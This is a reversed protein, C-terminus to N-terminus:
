QRDTEHRWEAGQQYLDRKWIPALKKLQDIIHRCAAFAEARHPCSVAIIVSAEGVACRGVRHLVAARCVDWQSRAVAITKQLEAVAMEEYAEYDLATLDGLQPHREARTTGIFLDIGGAAACTVHAIVEAADLPQSRFAILDDMTEERM